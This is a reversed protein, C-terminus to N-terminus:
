VDYTSSKIFANKKGPLSYSPDLLKPYERFGKDEVVSFTQFDSAIMKVLAEDTKVSGNAM